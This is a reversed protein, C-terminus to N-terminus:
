PLLLDVRLSDPRQRTGHSAILRMRIGAVSVSDLRGGATDIATLRLCASDSPASARLEYRYQGSPGAAVVNPDVLQPETWVCGRLSAEVRV